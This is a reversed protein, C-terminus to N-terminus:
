GNGTELYWAVAHAPLARVPWPDAAPPAARYLADGAPIDDCAVPTPAVNLYLTLRAGDGLRWAARVARPGLVHYGDGRAGRLRPVIHRQRLALLERYLVLWAAHPARERATADLRSREFTSVDCPDPITARAAADRFRAFRGFERRRGATVAPAVDPGFDCFFLFPEHAGWEEGMFLLPTAPALLLVATAARLAAPPALAALREGFARNGVQDHNQLFNVFASPPLHGSAEGRTEGQRFASPEGQYDFGQTLCRGLHRIPEHAYDIYYGDDEGTLLAHLAHHADDNWQADYRAGGAGATHGLYRAANHDNELVLHVHREPGLTARVTRALEQLIDPRSDDLIAHVADLRLGDM